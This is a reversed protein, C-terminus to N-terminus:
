EDEFMESLRCSNKVGAALGQIFTIVRPLVWLEKTILTRCMVRATNPCTYFSLAAEEEEYLGCFSHLM